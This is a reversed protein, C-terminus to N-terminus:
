DKYKIVCKYKEDDKKKCFSTNSKVELFNSLNLSDTDRMKVFFYFLFGFLSGTILGLIVSFVSVCNEFVEVLSNILFLLVFLIILFINASKKVFIMPYLLYVSIFSLITANTSPSMFLNTKNYVSFPTPFFDCYSSNSTRKVKLIHKLILNFFIVIVLGSIFILGKLSNNSIISYLIISVVVLFPILFIFIKLINLTALNQPVHKIIKPFESIPPSIKKEPNKSDRQSSSSSM